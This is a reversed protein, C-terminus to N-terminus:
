DRPPKKQHEKKPLPSKNRYDPQSASRRNTFTTKIFPTHPTYHSPRQQFASACTYKYMPIYTYNSNQPHKTNPFLTKGNNSHKYQQTFTERKRQTCHAITKLKLKNIIYKRPMIFYLLLFISIEYSYMLYLNQIKRKGLMKFDSKVKINHQRVESSIFIM